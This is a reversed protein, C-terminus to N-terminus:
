FQELFSPHNEYFLRIDDIGLKLMALREVGMGFAFGQWIDPDIKCTELVAPHVMGCGLVELYGSNKCVRCGEGKCFICRVDVEASPETFPFYSPRFRVTSDSGFFRKSFFDLTGILDAFSVEKDIMLGEVQHFMPSHTPDLDRRYVRGPVVVQVPVGLREMVRIQVPSTHTRLLFGEPDQVFFTDQMDRAPHHKPINLAEFNHYDDELEPGKAVSYGMQRFIALIEDQVRSIPHLKGTKPLPGPLSVDLACPPTDAKQGAELIRKKAEFSQLLSEKAENMQRGFRSRLDEPLTRMSAFAVALHGKRGLFRTKLAELADLSKVNELEELAGEVLADLRELVEPQM